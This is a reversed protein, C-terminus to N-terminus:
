CWNEHFIFGLFLCLGIWHVRYTLMLGLTKM